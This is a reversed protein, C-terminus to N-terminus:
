RANGVIRVRVDICELLVWDFRSVKKSIIGSGGGSRIKL